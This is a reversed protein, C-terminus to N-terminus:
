KKGSPRGNNVGSPPHRGTPSLSPHIQLHKRCALTTCKPPSTPNHSSGSGHVPSPGTGAGVGPKTPASPPQHPHHHWGSHGGFGFGRRTAYGCWYWGPGNWADDYWCYEQGGFLFQTKEILSLSDTAAGLQGAVTGAPAAQATSILATAAGIAAALSLTIGIKKV